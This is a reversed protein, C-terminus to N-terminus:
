DYFVSDSYPEEEDLDFIARVFEETEIYEFNAIQNMKEYQIQAFGPFQLSFVPM